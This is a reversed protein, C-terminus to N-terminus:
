RLHTAEGPDQLLVFYDDRIRCCPWISTVGQAQSVVSQAEDNADQGTSVSRLPSEASANSTLPGLVDMEHTDAGGVEEKRATVM